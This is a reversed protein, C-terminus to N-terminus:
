YVETGKALAIIGEALRDAALLAEQRTNGAAGVEILMGGPSLDQNFRQTRFSIARCIGPTQKQLQVHLKVALAMNREWNPHNRGSANTGVVMMLQATKQGEANITYGLQNGSGDEVADRHLDIVLCISPYAELYAAITERAAVYADDYSPYDHLSTDHIVGIGAGELREKLRKGVSVVNYNKDLTRYASSQTYGETNQYSESGHSHLILVTPTEQMLDWSLPEALMAEIDVGYGCVNNVEVLAGDEATFAVTQPTPTKSVTEVNPAPDSKEPISGVWRGTEMLVVASVTMPNKMVTAVVGTSVLRVVVALILVFFGAQFCRREWM